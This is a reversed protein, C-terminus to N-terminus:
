VRQDLDCSNSCGDLTTQNIQLGTDYLSQEAIKWQPPLVVKKAWLMYGDYGSTVVFRFQLGVSPPNSIDWLARHNHRLYKWEFDGVQAVDVNVIDTQGGQYVFKLALYNPYCNREDVKVSLNHGKYECFIREYKIDVIGKRELTAGKHLLALADRYLKPSVVAVNKGNLEVALSGYGCAGVTEARQLSGALEEARGRREIETNHETTLQTIQHQQVLLQAQLQQVTM